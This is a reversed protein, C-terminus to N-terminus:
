RRSESVTVTAIKRFKRSWSLNWLKSLRVKEVQGGVFGVNVAMDHRNICVRGLSVNMNGTQVDIVAKTAGKPVLDTDYPWTNVWIMDSFVPVDSKADSWKLYYYSKHSISDKDVNSGYDRILADLSYLWGNRGYSGEGGATSTSNGFNSAWANKATGVRDGTGPLPQRASPCYAIQLKDPTLGAVGSIAKQKINSNGLYPALEHFWYSGNAPWPDAMTKGNNNEVYMMMAVGIQRLNNSCVVTKASERVKSLAPLLISLLLAIIAIVVLLEVLTFATKTNRSIKTM